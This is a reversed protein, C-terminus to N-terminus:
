TSINRSYNRALQGFFELHGRVAYLHPLLILQLQQACVAHFRLIRDVKNPIQNSLVSLKANGFNIIHLGYLDLATLLRICM